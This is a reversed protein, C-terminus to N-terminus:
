LAGGAVVLAGNPSVALAATIPPAADGNTAALIGFVLGTALAAGGFGLSVDAALAYDDILRVESPACSAGAGEGCRARANSEETLALVGFTGMLVLGVGSTALCIGLGVLLESDDPGAAGPVTSVGDSSDTAEEASTVVAPVEGTLDANRQEVLATAAALTGAGSLATPSALVTATVSGDVTDIRDLRIGEVTDSVLVVVSANVIGAITLADRLRFDHEDVATQYDLEVRAETRLVDDFRPELELVVDETGVVLRRVRTRRLGECSLELRHTGSEVGAIPDPAVARDTGDLRLVCGDPVGTYTITVTPRRAREADIARLLEVVPPAVMTPNIPVEPHLERCEELM